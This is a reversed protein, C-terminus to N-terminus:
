KGSYPSPLLIESAYSIGFKTVGQAQPRLLGESRRDIGAVQDAAVLCHDVPVSVMWEGDCRKCAM